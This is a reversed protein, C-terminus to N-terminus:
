RPLACSQAEQELPALPEWLGLEDLALKIFAYDPDSLLATATTASYEASRGAEHLLKEMGRVIKNKQRTTNKGAIVEEAFERIRELADGVADAIGARVVVLRDSQNLYLADITDRGIQDRYRIRANHLYLHNRPQLDYPNVIMGDTIVNHSSKNGNCRKCAPVLNIWNVVLHGFDKKCNFHDVEMYKSEEDLKTECYACKSASSELLAKRIYHTNWVSTEDAHYKTTLAEATAEDLETPSAPRDLKIM